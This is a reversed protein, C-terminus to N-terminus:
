RGGGSKGLLDSSCGLRVTEAVVAPNTNAARAPTRDWSMNPKILVVDGRQVDTGQLRACSELDQASILSLPPLLDGTSGAVDLLVGRGVLPPVTEVGAQTFGTWTQVAPTIAVGGCLHMAEAQHSLADIHTGAHDVAVILGSASSRAEDLGAEHRRHLTYVYGPHHGPLCPMTTTRPQELDILISDQMAAILAATDM